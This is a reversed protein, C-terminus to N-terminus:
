MYVFFSYQNKEIKQRNIFVVYGLRFISFQLPKLFIRIFRKTYINIYLQFIDYHSCVGIDYRFHKKSICKQHYNFIYIVCYINFNNIVNFEM